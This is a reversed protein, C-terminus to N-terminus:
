PLVRNGFPVGISGPMRDAAKLGEIIRQQVYFAVTNELYNISLRALLDVHKFRSAAQRVAAAFGDLLEFKGTAPDLNGARRSQLTKGEDDSWARLHDYLECFIHDRTSSRFGAGHLARAVPDSKSKRFPKRSPRHLPLQLSFHREALMSVDEHYASVNGHTRVDPYAETRKVFPLGSLFWDAFRTGVKRSEKTTSQYLILQMETTPIFGLEPAKEETLFQLAGGFGVYIERGHTNGAELATVYSKKEDCPDDPKSVQSKEECGSAVVEKEPASPLAEALEKKEAPDIRAFVDKEKFYYIPDEMAVAKLEPADLVADVVSTSTAKEVVVKGEVQARTATIEGKPPTLVIGKPSDDVRVTAIKVAETAATGVRLEPPPVPKVGGRQARAIQAEVMRMMSPPEDKADVDGPLHHFHNGAITCDQIPASCLVYPSRKKLKGEKQQKEVFRRARGSLPVGQGVKRHYHEDIVCDEAYGCEAFPNTEAPSAHDDTNTFSGNNGNLRLYKPPKSGKGKKVPADRIATEARATHRDKRARPNPKPPESLSGESPLSVIGSMMCGGMSKPLARRLSSAFGPRRWAIAGGVFFFVGYVSTFIAASSQYSLDECKTECTAPCPKPQSLTGAMVANDEVVNSRGYCDCTGTFTESTELYGGYPSSGREMTRAEGLGGNSMRREKCGCPSTTIWAAAVKM